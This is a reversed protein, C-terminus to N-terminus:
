FGNASHSKEIGKHSYIKMGHKEIPLEIYFTTGKGQRTKFRIRGGHVQTVTFYVMYLGLGTGNAGSIFPKFINEQIEEPMGPGNDEVSIHISSRKEWIEVKIKGGENLVQVSNRLLNHIARKFLRAELAMELQCHSWFALEIGKVQCVPELDELVEKILAVPDAKELGESKFTGLVKNLMESLQDVKDTIKLFYEKRKEPNINNNGGLQSLARITSLPNKLDHFMTSLFSGSAILREQSHNYKQFLIQFPKKMVEEVLAKYILVFSILKFFHGLINFFGYPDYYLTFSIESFVTIIISAIVAFRVEPESIIKYRWLLYASVIFVFSILYESFIKFFTLGNGELYCIPFIRLWISASLILGLFCFGGFILNSSIRKRKINLFAYLFFSISEVFRATIWFQTTVNVPLGPFLNMGKYTFMHFMDLTGVLLYGVALLLFSNNPTLHRSNWGINFITFAILISLFEILSHYALYNYHSILALLIIFIVFIVKSFFSM